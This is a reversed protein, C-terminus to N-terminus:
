IYSSSAAEKNLRNIEEALEEVLTQIANVCHQRNHLTVNTLADAFLKVYKKGLGKAIGLEMTAIISLFLPDQKLVVMKFCATRFEELPEGLTTNTFTSIASIAGGILDMDITEQTQESPFFEHHIVMGDQSSLIYGLIM